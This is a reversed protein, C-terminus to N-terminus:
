QSSDQHRINIFGEQPSPWVYDYWQGLLEKTEQAHKVIDDRRQRGKEADFHDGNLDGCSTAFRSPRGNDEESMMTLLVNRWLKMTEDLEEVKSVGIVTVGLKARTSQGPSIVVAPKTDNTDADGLALDGRSGVSSGVRLWSEMAYRIAISELKEGIKDLEDCVNKVAARLEKPAPHWDGQGGVPVGNHRLLGMSLVSANTVVDVGATRLAELGETLLRTNQVNFNSYSQVIDIPEGTERLVLEALSVLVHVPYGSIGVYRVTGQEDRLRRLEKIAMVVEEPTVFEVDHCYVADLYTTRMRELSRAVSKRVWAPSYDFSSLGVRGCKTLIMYSERPFAKQVSPQALADGLLTESPGYYASTDFARVGLKLARAILVNTPIDAVSVNYQNNFTASGCILLPLIESLKPRPADAM